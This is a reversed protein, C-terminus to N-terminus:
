QEDVPGRKFEMNTWSDDEDMEVRGDAWRSNRQEEGAGLPRRAEAKRITAINHESLRPFVGRAFLTPMCDRKFM